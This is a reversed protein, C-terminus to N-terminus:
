DLRVGAMVADLLARTEKSGKWVSRPSMGIVCVSEGQGVLTVNRQRWDKHGEVEEDYHVVFASDLARRGGVEGEHFDYEYDVQPRAEMPPALRELMCQVHLSDLGLEGEVRLVRVILGQGRAEIREPRGSTTQATWGAPTRLTLTGSVGRHEMVLEGSAGAEEEGAGTGRPVLLLVAFM